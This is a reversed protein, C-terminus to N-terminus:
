LKLKKFCVKNFHIGYKADAKLFDSFGVSKIEV